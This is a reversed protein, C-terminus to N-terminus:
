GASRAKAAIIRLPRLHIKPDPLTVVHMFQDFAALQNEAPDLNGVGGAQETMGVGIRQQMRNGIRQETRHREAIDAAMKGIGVRTVFAGVAAHQQAGCDGQQGLFAPARDIDVRRQDGLLGFQRRM